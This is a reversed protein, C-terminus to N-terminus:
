IVEKLEFEFCLSENRVCVIVGFALTAGVFINNAMNGTTGFGLLLVSLWFYEAKM